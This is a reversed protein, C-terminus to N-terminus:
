AQYFARCGYLRQVALGKISRLQQALEPLLREGHEARDSGGQKYKAIYWGILWNRV